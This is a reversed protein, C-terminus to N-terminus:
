NIDFSFSAFDIGRVFLYIVQDREQDSVPVENFLSPTLSYNCTWDERSLPIILDYLHKRCTLLNGVRAYLLTSLMIILFAIANNNLISYDQGNNYMIYKIKKHCM